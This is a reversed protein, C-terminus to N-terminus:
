KKRPATGPLVLGYVAEVERSNPKPFCKYVLNYMSKAKESWSGEKAVGLDLNSGVKHFRAANQVLRSRFLLVETTIYDTALDASTAQSTSM